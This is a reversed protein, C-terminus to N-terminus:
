KVSQKPPRAGHALLVCDFQALIAQDRAIELREGFMRAREPENVVGRRDRRRRSAIQHELGVGDDAAHM